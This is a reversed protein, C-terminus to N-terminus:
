GLLLASGRHWEEGGIKPLRGELRQREAPLKADSAEVEALREPQFM